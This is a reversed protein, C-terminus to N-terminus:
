LLGGFVGVGVWGELARRTKGGRAGLSRVQEGPAMTIIYEQKLRSICHQRTSTLHQRSRAGSHAFSKQHLSATPIYTYSITYINAEKDCTIQNLGTTHIYPRPTHPAVVRSIHIIRAAVFRPM